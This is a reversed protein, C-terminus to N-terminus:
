PLNSSSVFKLSVLVFYAIVIRLNFFLNQTVMNINITLVQMKEWFLATILSGICKRAIDTGHTLRTEDVLLEQFHFHYVEGTAECNYISYSSELTM